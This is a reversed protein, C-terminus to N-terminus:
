ALCRYRQLTLADAATLRLPNSIVSPHLICICLPPTPQSPDDAPMLFRNQETPPGQINKQLQAEGKSQSGPRIFSLDNPPFHGQSARQILARESPTQAGHRRMWRGASSSAPRTLRARGDLAVGSRRGGHAGCLHFLQKLRFRAM